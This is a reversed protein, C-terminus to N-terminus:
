GRIDSAFRTESIHHYVHDHQPYLPSVDLALKSRRLVPWSHLVVSSVDSVDLYRRHSSCVVALCLVRHFGELCFGYARSTGCCFRYSRECLYLVERGGHHGLKERAKLISRKIRTLPAIYELM